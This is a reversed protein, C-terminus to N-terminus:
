IEEWARCLDPGALVAKRRDLLTAEAQSRDADAERLDAGASFFADSGRLIVARVGPEARLARALATLEAITQRTLANKTAPSNLQVTVIRSDETVLVSTCSPLDLTAM